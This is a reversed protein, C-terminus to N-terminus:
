NAEGNSQQERARLRLMLAREKARMEADRADTDHDYGLLHLMGHIMLFSVEDLLTWDGEAALRTQHEADQQQRVATDVSIVVDGLVDGAMEGGEGERMAFSLVDTAKDIGRWQANLSRIEADDVLVVCVEAAAEDVLECLM